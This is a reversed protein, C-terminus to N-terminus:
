AALKEVLGAGGVPLASTRDVGSPRATATEEVAALEQTECGALGGLSRGQFFDLGGATEGGADFFEDAPCPLAVRVARKGVAACIGQRSGIPARDMVRKLRRHVFELGQERLFEPHVLSDRPLSGLCKSPRRGRRGNSAGSWPPTTGGGAFGFGPEPTDFGCPIFASQPSIAAECPNSGHCM